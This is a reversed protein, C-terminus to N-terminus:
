SRKNKFFVQPPQKWTKFNKNTKNSSFTNSSFKFQIASMKSVLLTSIDFYLNCALKEVAALVKKKLNLWGVAFFWDCIFFDKM